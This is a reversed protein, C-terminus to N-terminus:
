FCIQARLGGVIITNEGKAADGGFPDGIVQFDPSVTLHDNVKFSYYVELHDESRAKLNSGAKKYDDSPMIQGFAIAFIDDDRGWLNGVLQFGAGWSQELSFDEGSSYVASNQCGYRAFMGLNDTLEQDFSIGFGYNKEKIRSVDSWKIHDKGNLWAYFRYNGTREFLNPKFNFQGSFFLNDFIDEWDADTDMAILEIDLFSVPEVSLRMGAANDDPFEIAPSNRFMHGLFQGCEDNAYENTDLYATSDIKGFTLILPISKFHQEYWVETLSIGNNSDDADRNVNSFVKLEDEVGAGDGTELHIFAMGYNEFEKEFELDISYSGDLSSEGNRTLEDANANNTGQVIFTAGARITLGDFAEKIKALTEEYVSQEDADGGHEALNTELVIIRMKLEDLEDPISRPFVFSFPFSVFWTFILGALIKKFRM